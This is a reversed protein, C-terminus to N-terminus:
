APKATREWFVGAFWGLMVWLIASVVISAAAFEGALEPPASGGIAEPKPAGVIHPLSAVAVGVIPMWRHRGFVVLWLGGGAAAVAFLWWLQRDVLDAAMAGPVEPALGLAPALTFVAFGAIGWGVGRRGDVPKGDLAFCGVLLLAFGVSMILNGGLTYLTREIGDAPAWGGEEVEPQAASSAFRLQAANGNPATVFVAPDAQALESGAPARDLAANEYTEAHLIIPVTTYAHVVSILVGALGGAALAVSFIRKLM